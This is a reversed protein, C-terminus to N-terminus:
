SLQRYCIGSGRGNLKFTHEPSSPTGAAAGGHLTHSGTKVARPYPGQSAASSSAPLPIFAIYDARKLDTTTTIKRWQSDFKGPTIAECQYINTTGGEDGLVCVEIFDADANEGKVRRVAPDGRIQFPKDACQAPTGAGSGGSADGATAFRAILDFLRKM